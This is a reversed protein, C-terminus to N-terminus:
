VEAVSREPRTLRLDSTEKKNQIFKALKILGLRDNWIVVMFHVHLHKECCKSEFVIDSKHKKKLCFVAYSIRVHSSNLRTSKRDTSGGSATGSIVRVLPTSPISSSGQENLMSSRRIWMHTLRDATSGTSAM